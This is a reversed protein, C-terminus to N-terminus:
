ARSERAVTPTAGSPPGVSAIGLHARARNLADDINGHISGYAHTHGMRAGCETPTLPELRYQEAMMRLGDVLRIRPAFGLVAAARAHPYRVSRTLAMSMNRGSVLRYAREIAWRAATDLRRPLTWVRRGVLEGIAQVYRNLKVMEHGVHLLHNAGPPMAAAQCLAQVVDDVHVVDIAVDGIAIPLRRIVRVWNRFWPGSGLGYVNTPRIITWSLEGGAADRLRCEGLYKTGAYANLHDTDEPEDDETLVNQPRRTGGLVSISSIYIFRGVGAARAARALRETGIVNVEHSRLPDALGMQAACHIVVDAGRVLSTATGPEALDGFARSYAAQAETGQHLRGLRQLHATMGAEDDALEAARSSWRMAAEADGAKEAAEALAVAARVAERLQRARTEDLWRGVDPASAIHVGELLDGRYHMLADEHRGARVAEGFATADCWAAEARVGVEDGRTEITTTGLHTRLFYLSRRLAARAHQDDQDPWFLALLSDRRHFRRDSLLLYLFLALRKPQRVVAELETGDPGLVEVEGLVRLRIV